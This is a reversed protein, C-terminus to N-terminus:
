RRLWISAALRGTRGDRRFSFFRSANGVTCWGAGGDNGHVARVGAAQLRDRALGPLHALWKPTGDAAARQPRFRATAGPGFATLVDAGVEFADPGIAPGLWASLAAPTTETAKCLAQVTTELVGGALGRWGAHAAAVGRGNDTAFLVPLCDAAQVSCAVGPVTTVAADAEPATEPLPYALRVVESGHVQALWVPRAGCRAAHRAQNIAVAATEDGIGQRLNLGAFAGTSVGGRRTSMLAGFRDPLEPWEPRLWADGLNSM